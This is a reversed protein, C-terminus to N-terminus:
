AGKKTAIYKMATELQEKYARVTEQRVLHMSSYWYTETRGLLWPWHSRYRDLLLITPVGMSGALHAVGTDISVVYDLKELLAATDEWDEIHENFFKVKASKLQNYEDENFKINLAIWEYEPHTKILELISDFSYSHSHGQYSFGIRSKKSSKVLKKWKNRTTDSPKIYNEIVPFQHYSLNIVRGISMIPTWYDYEPLPETNDIVTHEPFSSIFLRKLRPETQLIIKCNFLKLFRVFQINDGDGEEGIVLLTKDTLDQGEWRPKEFATLVHEHNKFRWRCEFDILGRHLDGSLLVAYALNMPANRDEPLLRVGLEAFPIAVEPHGMEALIKGYNSYALGLYPYRAFAESYCVLANEYDLNNYYLKALRDLEELDRM